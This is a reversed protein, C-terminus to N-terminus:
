LWGMVLHYHYGLSLWDTGMSTTRWRCISTRDTEIQKHQKLHNFACINQSLWEFCPCFSKVISTSKIHLSLKLSPYKLSLWLMTCCLSRALAHHLLSVMSNIRDRVKSNYITHNGKVCVRSIIGWFSLFNRDKTLTIPKPPQNFIGERNQSRNTPSSQRNHTTTITHTHTFPLLSILICRSIHLEVTEWIRCFEYLM